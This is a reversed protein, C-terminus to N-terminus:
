FASAHLSTQDRDIGLIVGPPAARHTFPAHGYRPEVARNGCKREVAHRLFGEFLVVACAICLSLVKQLLSDSMFLPASLAGKGGVGLCFGLGVRGSCNTVWSCM